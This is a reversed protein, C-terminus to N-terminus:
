LAFESGAKIEASNYEVILNNMLKQLLEEMNAEIATALKAENVNGKRLPIAGLKRKGGDATPLYFNLFGQAKWNDDNTNTNGQNGAAPNNLKFAMLTRWLLPNFSLMFLISVSADM